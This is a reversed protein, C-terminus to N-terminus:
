DDAAPDRAIEDPAGGAGSGEGMLERARQLIQEDPGLGILYELVARAAPEDGVEKWVRALGLYASYFGPDWRLCDEFDSKARSLRGLGTAHDLYILGRLYHATSFYERQKPNNKTYDPRELFYDLERKANAFNMKRYLDLAPYYHLNLINGVNISAAVDTSGADYKTDQKVVPPAADHIVIEDGEQAVAAGGLPVLLGLALVVLSGYNRSKM